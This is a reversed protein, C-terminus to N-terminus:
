DPNPGATGPTPCRRRTPVHKSGLASRSRQRCPEPCAPGSGPEEPRRGALLTEQAALAVASAPDQTGVRPHPDPTSPVFDVKEPHEDDPRAMATYQVEFLTRGIVVLSGSRLLTAHHISRGDVITGNRSGLDEIADGDSTPSVQCHERSVDEDELVVSCGPSRGFTLRATGLSYETGSHRGELALSKM